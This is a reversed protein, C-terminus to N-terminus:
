EVVPLDDFFSKSKAKPAPTAVHRIFPALKEAKELFEKRKEEPWVEREELEFRRREPDSKKRKPEPM